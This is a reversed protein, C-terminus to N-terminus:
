WHGSLAPASRVNRFVVDPRLRPASAMAVIRKETLSRLRRSITLYVQKMRMLRIANPSTSQQERDILERIRAARELLVLFRRSMIKRRNPINSTHGTFFDFCRACGIRDSMAAGNQHMGSPGPGAIKWHNLHAQTLRLHGGAFAVSLDCDAQALRRFRPVPGIFRM